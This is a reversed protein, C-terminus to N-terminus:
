RVIHEHESAGSPVELRRMRAAAVLGAFYWFVFSLSTHIIVDKYFLALGMLVTVGVWGAAFTSVIDDGQRRVALSDRLIFWMLMMVLVTGLLGLELLIRGIGTTLYPGYVSFREGAFEKGLASNSVNGIGYGFVLYAPDRVMRKIPVVISDVRGPNVDSGIDETKSLYEAVKEPDTMKEAIPEGYRRGMQLQDYMAIFVVGFGCILASTLLVMRLRKGAPTAALFTVLLGVPLLVLTGKTENLTTPLLLLLFIMAFQWPKLRKRVFMAAAVCMVGILFISMISSILLTGSILDGTFSGQADTALRQQAVLPMQLLAVALLLKVQSKVQDNTFAFVAPVLFWPIARLYNRAGAFIPGAGVDNILAGCIITVLLAGFVVWYGARVYQFRNRTGAIVVITGAILGMLEALYQSGNPLLTWRGWYDGKTFFEFTTVAILMLLTLKQM